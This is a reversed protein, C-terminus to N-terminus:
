VLLQSRFVLALTFLQDMLGLRELIVRRDRLEPRELLDLQDKHGKFMALFIM